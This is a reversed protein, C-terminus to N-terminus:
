CAIYVVQRQGGSPGPPPAAATLPHSPPVDGPDTRRPNPPTVNVASPTFQVVQSRRGDYCDETHRRTTTTLEDSKM